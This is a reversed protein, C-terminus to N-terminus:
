HENMPTLLMVYLFFLGHRLIHQNGNKLMNLLERSILTTIETEKKQFVRYISLLSFYNYIYNDRSIHRM